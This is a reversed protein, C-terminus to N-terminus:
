LIITALLESARHDAKSPLPIRPDNIWADIDRWLTEAQLDRLLMHYGEKYIAIRQSAKRKEPLRGLMVRTANAPIIEDREGYLFLSKTQLTAAKELALDMLNALGFVTDIRTEKIVLPDRSLARLMESNDSPKKRLGKGTVELWPLTHAVLSLAIRQYWPMTRRGWVAPATFIVGEVDPRNDNNMAVMVVAGGMSEGILYVPLGPHRKHILGTIEVLDDTYADVGAWLGRNITNGFGRQDYAYSVIGKTKLFRGPADFFNSYDNFGHLAVIVAKIAKNDPIWTRFPLRIGDEMVFHEDILAAKQIPNGPPSVLPACAAIWILVLCLIGISVKTKSQFGTASQKGHSRKYRQFSQSCHTKM